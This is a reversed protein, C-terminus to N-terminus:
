MGSIRSPINKIETIDMWSLANQSRIYKSLELVENKDLKKNKDTDFIELDIGSNNYGYYLEDDKITDDKNKDLKNFDYIFLEDNFSSPYDHENGINQFIIFNNIPPM